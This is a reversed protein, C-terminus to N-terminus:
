HRSRYRSAYGLLGKLGTVLNSTPIYEEVQPTYRRVVEFMRKSFLSYTEYNSGLIVVDPVLKRIEHVPMGRKVGLAKAEYSLASAIGRKAGTVVPKGRLSPDLAVECGVFFADGDIHLIARRMIVFDPKLL